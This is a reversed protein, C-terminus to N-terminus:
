VQLLSIIHCSSGENVIGRMMAVSHTQAIAHTTISTNCRNELSSASVECSTENSISDLDNFHFQTVNDDHPNAGVKSLLGESEWDDLFDFNDFSL